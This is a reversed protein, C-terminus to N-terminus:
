SLVVGRPHGNPVRDSPGGIRPGHGVVLWRRDFVLQGLDGVLRAQTEDVEVTAEPDQAGVEGSM